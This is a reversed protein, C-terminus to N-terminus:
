SLVKLFWADMASHESGELPIDLLRFGHKEYLRCATELEHLTELYCSRYHMSAFFLATEMLKNSLGQGQVEPILYLKQLECIGSEANFPAVGVGGVIMGDIIAVWYNANTLKAYYDHLNSLQPDFYATGPLNLGRSKLSEQIIQKVRANDEKKIERILM